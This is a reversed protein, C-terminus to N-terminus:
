PLKEHDRLAARLEPIAAISVAIRRAEEKTMRGSVSRRDASAEFYTYAVAFGTADNIRFAEDLEVVTWPPPFRRFAPTTM